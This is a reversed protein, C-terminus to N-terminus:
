EETIIDTVSPEDPLATTAGEAIGETSDPIFVTKVTMLLIKFDLSLSYRQIYMLDLKLKDYPTTNYKGFVQAYGTLGAKVKLRFSFEPMTEEYQKAIQPREPRPGVFSMDGMLINFFQPLEDLRCKRIFRGVPTIRSDGETSLRAVGDKEADTIMSRFKWVKFVRGGETLREQKYLVPGRDYLKICVAAVLMFPSTIVIGFLAGVIDILRKFFRQEIGLGQNRALLLPTDFMHFEDAGRVIIDSIKPNIYTRISKEFTFKIIKSRKPAPVDCIIVAEYELIKDKIIELDEDSSISSCIIYKDVRKSMKVVLDRASQSGYVIIMKRAPYIKRYFVSSCMAWVVAYGIDALTLVALQLVPVFGRAILSIQLYTVANTGILTLIQSGIVGLPKSYGVKFASFSNGILSYVLAYIAILLYNGKKFFPNDIVTLNYFGNWLYGFSIVVIAILVFSDIFMIVRKFQERKLMFVYEEM